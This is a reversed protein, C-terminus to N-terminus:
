CLVSADNEIENQAVIFSFAFAANDIPMTVM